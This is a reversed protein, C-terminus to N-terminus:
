KFQNIKEFSQLSVFNLIMINLSQKLTEIEELSKKLIEFM